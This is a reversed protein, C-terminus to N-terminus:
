QRAIHLDQLLSRYAMKYLGSLDSDSAYVVVHEDLIHKCVTEMLTHVLTIAGEPDAERRDM